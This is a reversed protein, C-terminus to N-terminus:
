DGMYSFYLMTSEFQKDGLEDNEAAKVRMFWCNYLHAEYYLLLTQAELRAARPEFKGMVGPKRVRDKLPLARLWAGSDGFCQYLDEM